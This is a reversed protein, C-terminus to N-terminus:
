EIPLDCDYNTPTWKQFESTDMVSVLADMYAAKEEKSKAGAWYSAIESQVIEGDILRM